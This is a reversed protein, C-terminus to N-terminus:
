GGEGLVKAKEAEFEAATLVGSERLKALRELQAIREEVATRTSSETPAAPPQAADPQQGLGEPMLGQGQLTRAVQEGEHTGTLDITEGGSEHVRAGARDLLKRLKDFAMAAITDFATLARLYRPLV